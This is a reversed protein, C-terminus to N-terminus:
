GNAHQFEDPDNYSAQAIFLWDIKLNIKTWFSLRQKEVLFYSALLASKISCVQAAFHTIRHQVITKHHFHKRAWMSLNSIRAYCNLVTFLVSHPPHLGNCAYIYM